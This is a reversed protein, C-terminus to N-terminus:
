PTAQEFPTGLIWLQIVGLIKDDDIVLGDTGELPSGLVWFSIANTVEDDDIIKNGNLDLAQEVTTAPTGPAPTLSPNDEATVNVKDSDVGGLDDRVTLDLLYEGAVDAVFTPTASSPDDLVALSGEPRTVVKWNYSLADNDPDSSASADLQVTDGANVTQDGGGNALPARNPLPGSLFVQRCGSDPDDATFAAREGDLTLTINVFNQPDSVHQSLTSLGTGDRNMKAFSAKSDAVVEFAVVDGSDNLSPFREAKGATNSLNTEVLSGDAPVVFVDYQQSLQREFAVFAGNGSIWPHLDEVENRTLQRLNTGLSTIAFVEVDGAANTGLYDGNSSFAVQTGDDSVTPFGDEADPSDTLNTPPASGDAPSVFIDGGQEYVVTSGDASIMPHSVSFNASGTQVAESVLQESEAAVDYVFAAFRGNLVDRVFAVFRGDASISPSTDEVANDTLQVQQERALDSVFIEQDEPRTPECSSDATKDGVFAVSLGDQSVRPMVKVSNTDTLPASSQASLVLSFGALLAVTLLLRSVQRM